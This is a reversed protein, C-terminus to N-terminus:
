GEYKKPLKRWALIAEYTSSKWGWSGTHNSAIIDSWECIGLEGSSFTVLYKEVKKPPDQTSWESKAVKHLSNLAEIADNLNILVKGPKISSTINSESEKNNVDFRGCKNCLVCIEGYSESKNKCEDLAAIAM